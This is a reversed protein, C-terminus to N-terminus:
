SQAAGRTIVQVVAARMEENTLDCDLDRCAQDAEPSLKAAKGSIVAYMSELVPRPLKGLYTRMEAPSEVGDEILEIQLAYKCLRSDKEDSRWISCTMGFLPESVSANFGEFNRAITNLANRVSGAARRMQVAPDVWLEDVIEQVSMTRPWAECLTRVVTMARTARAGPRKSLYVEFERTIDDLRQNWASDRGQGGRPLPVDTKRLEEQLGELRMPKALFRDIGIRSFEKRRDEGSVGIIQCSPRIEKFRRVLDAANDGPLYWDLLVYQVSEDREFLRLAVEGNEATLCVCGARQLQGAVFRRVYDEDDVLLVHGPLVWQTPEKESLGLLSQVVPHDRLVPLRADDLVVLLQGDDDLDKGLLHWHGTSGDIPTVQIWDTPAVDVPVDEIVLDNVNGLDVDGFLERAHRNAWLIVGDGRTRFVGVPPHRAEPSSDQIAGHVAEVLREPEFPKELFGAVKHGRANARLDDSAYGTMLVTRLGPNVAGLVESVHLGHLHDRLMWDAVLVDPRERAAAHIAEACSAVSRVECGKSQLSLCIQDRFDREDDVVLVRIM